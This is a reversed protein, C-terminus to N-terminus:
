SPTLSKELLFCYAEVSGLDQRFRRLERFGERAYFQRGKPNKEEVELRVCVARPFEALFANLLAKGIGERQREPHVYLRGLHLVREEDLQGSAIGTLTGSPHEAVLWRMSGSAIERELKAPAHWTATVEDLVEVPVVPSYTDVWTEYLLRKISPVDGVVAPRIPPMSQM